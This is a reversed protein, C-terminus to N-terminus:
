DTSEGMAGAEWSRRIMEVLVAEDIRELRTVYLCSVSTKHPGLDALLDRHRDFGDMFYVTLNQKRPSLGVRFWNGERGSAYRYEYDGFGIIADGWMSPEEGTVERMLECVRRADKRRTDHEVTALFAEVDADTKQTKNEGM